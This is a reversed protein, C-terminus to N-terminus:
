NDDRAFPAAGRVCDFPGRRRASIFSASPRARPVSTGEVGGRMGARRREPHCLVNAGTRGKSRGPQRRIPPLSEAMSQAPNGSRITHTMWTSPRPESRCLAEARAFPREPIRDNRGLPILGCTSSDAAGIQQSIRPRRRLTRIWVRGQPTSRSAAATPSRSKGNSLALTGRPVDM